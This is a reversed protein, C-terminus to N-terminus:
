NKTLLIQNEIMIFYFPVYDYEYKILCSFSFVPRSLYCM